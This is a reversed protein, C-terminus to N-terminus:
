QVIGLQGGDVRINQGHIGAARDSALFLVLDAVEERTAIRGLPINRALEAEVSAWDSPKGDRDAQARFASEVEPTRILAPSVLNVTIGHRGLNKALSQTLNALAGKAAYYHPREGNPRTSGVTGLNIIRGYGRAKMAPVLADILRVCSLTNHEYVRVWDATDLTQWDGRDAHGYNNILVDIHHDAALADLTTRCDDSTPDFSVAVGAGLEAVATDAQAKTFGHVLVKAGEALMREAIIRGTGRYSGTILATRHTLGLNM